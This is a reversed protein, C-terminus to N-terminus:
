TAQKRIEKLAEMATWVCDVFPKKMQPNRAVAAPHICPVIWCNPWDPPGLIQGALETFNGIKIRLMEQSAFKGMTMILLPQVKKLDKALVEIGENVMERTPKTGRPCPKTVINTVFCDDRSVGYKRLEDWLIHSTKGSFHVDEKGKPRTHSPSEGIIM